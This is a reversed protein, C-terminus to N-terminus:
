YRCIVRESHMLAQASRRGAPIRYCALAECLVLFADTDWTTLVGRSEPGPALRAWIERAYASAWDPCEIKGNPPIPEADNIRDKRDGHLIRLATPRPDPGRKGM